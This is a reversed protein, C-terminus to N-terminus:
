VIKKESFFVGLNSFIEVSKKVLIVGGKFYVKSIEHDQFYTHSICRSNNRNVLIVIYGIIPLIFKARCFVSFSFGLSSSKGDKGPEQLIFKM